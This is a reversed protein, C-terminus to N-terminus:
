EGGETQLRFDKRLPHGVFDDPCLIRKLDPHGPFKVGMLDFAEREQVNAAPWLATLSPVEPHQRDLNVKVRIEAMGPVSLLHYVMEIREDEPYDVATLDALFNFGRKEKLETMLALLQDAPVVLAPVDVGERVELDPFLRQLEQIFNDM